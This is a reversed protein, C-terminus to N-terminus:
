LSVRRVADTTTALRHRDVAGSLRMAAYYIIAASIATPIGAGAYRFLPHIRLSVPDFLALYMAAAGAIVAIAIWNVGGWFWYAGERPLAFLDAIKLRQRRLSFYDTLMVAAMGVFMVGNYALWTMVHNLLWETRFAFIVGPLLTLAVVWEWQLAALTRIQQVAVSAVYVLVVLTGINAILLFGIMASGVAPGMLKIMWNAPDPDSAVSAALAAVSAVLSAGVIGSGVVTPGILHRKYKVLRTLGGLFPLVGLANDFGFEVAYAIQALPDATIAKEPAVDHGSLASTGYKALLLGLILLAILLQGPACIRSLREMAAPGRRTLHWILVLLTIAVAVVMPESLSTSPGGALQAVRVMGRATMATLVYAWGLSAALVAFLLLVCGRTGLTAKAADIADIGFRFSPIGVAFVVVVEGVVLGVLYGVISLWTNGFAPFASGILYAWSAASLVATTWLLSGYTKYIREDPLVPLRGALAEQLLRSRADMM